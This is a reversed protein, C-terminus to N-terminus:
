DRRDEGSRREIETRRESSTRREKWEKIETYEEQSAFWSRSLSGEQQSAKWAEIDIFLEVLDNDLKGAEGEERLIDLVKDLPVAKKYPRDSAHLADFIDAIAMIRAPLPIAEKGKLKLPYGSGDLKEHHKLTIDPIERYEKPWPIKSVFDYTREVHSEIEKREQPNLSGQKVKLNMIERDNLLPVMNGELDRYHLKDGYMLLDQIIQQPDNETVRPENLRTVCDIIEKLKELKEDFSHTLSEELEEGQSVGIRAHDLEISRYLFQLRMKLYAFDQPFLKKGKLFINPDIYVKGFDHLMGAFEIEKLQTDDYSVNAWLPDPSESVAKAVEVSMEAVRFSHGSTAPDRSEIASVSAKVFEEFQREIQLLMRNNELAIAAQGAIAEMLTEYRENFPVVLTDYDEPDSLVVEFAENGTYKEGPIEKCNILQIVGLITGLHNRMPLVLMSKTHYGHKEDFVTNFSVPLDGGLNYADPINLVKGTVGVYGAISKTDVPMIFEEYNLKKSFTHSYKFRLYNKKGGEEVIFISGADAGTIKKSLMLISRLLKDPDKELSLSRGIHILSEQDNLADKLAREKTHQIHRHEEELKWNATVRRCLFLCEEWSVPGKRADVRPPIDETVNFAGKLVVQCWLDETKRCVVQFQQWEEEALFLLTARYPAPSFDAAWGESLYEIEIDEPLEQPLEVEDKVQPSLCLRITVREEGQRSKLRWERGPL